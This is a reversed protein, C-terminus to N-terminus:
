LYIMYNCYILMIIFNLLVNIIRSRDAIKLGTKEASAKKYFLDLEQKCYASALYVPSNLCIMIASKEIGSSISDDFDTSGDLKKSDWWIKVMDMRGFRQALLLNLNTYFQEIWGATQGPFMANDVHAYSIFIDYEYGPILAM